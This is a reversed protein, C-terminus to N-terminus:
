NVCRMKSHANIVLASHAKCADVLAQCFIFSAVGVDMISRGYNATKAFRRPFAPFDVALIAICTTILVVSRFIM